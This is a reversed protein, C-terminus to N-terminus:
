LRPEAIRELCVTLAREVMIAVLRRRYDASARVDSIPACAEAALQGVAAFAAPGAPQGVLYAEAKQPRLAKPGAAGIALRASACRSSNADLTLCAAVCVVSIEMAQRRGVKLFGTASNAPLHPFRIGTVIEALALETKGPGVIFDRL